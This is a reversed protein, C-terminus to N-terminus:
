NEALAPVAHTDHHVMFQRQLLKRGRFLRSRITGLPVGLAQAAEEYSMEEVDCLAITLRYEEPLKDLAVLILEATLKAPVAPWPDCSSQDDDTQASTVPRAGRRRLETLHENRLIKILWSRPHRGDFKEWARSANLLTQGVLDEADAPDLTLRKAVRYLVPLETMVVDEFKGKASMM